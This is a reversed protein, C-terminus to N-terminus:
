FIILYRDILFEVILVAREAERNADSNLVVACACASWSVYVLIEFRDVLLICKENVVNASASRVEIAMAIGVGM